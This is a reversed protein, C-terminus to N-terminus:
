KSKDFADVVCLGTILMVMLFLERYKLQSSGPTHLLGQECPRCETLEEAETGWEKRRGARGEKQTRSRILESGQTKSGAVFLLLEERTLAEDTVKVWHLTGRPSPVETSSSGGESQGTLM